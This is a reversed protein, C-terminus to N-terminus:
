RIRQEILQTLWTRDTPNNGYIGNIGTINGDRGNTVLAAGGNNLVDTVYDASFDEVQDAPIRNVKTETGTTHTWLSRLAPGADVGKVFSEEM